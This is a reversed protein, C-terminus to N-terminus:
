KWDEFYKAARNEEQIIAINQFAKKIAEKDREPVLVYAMNSWEEPFPTYASVPRGDLSKTLIQNSKKSLNIKVDHMKGFSGTEIYQIDKLDFFQVVQYHNNFEENIYEHRYYCKGDQIEFEINRFSEDPSLHIERRDIKYVLFDISQEISPRPGHDKCSITLIILLSLFKRM